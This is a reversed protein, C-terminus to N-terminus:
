DQDHDSAEEQEEDSRVAKYLDVLHNARFAAEADSLDVGFREKYLIKYEEIAEQPLLM